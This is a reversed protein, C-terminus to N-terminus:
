IEPVGALNDQEGIHNGVVLIEQGNNQAIELPESVEFTGGMGPVRKGALYQKGSNIDALLTERDLLIRDSFVAGRRLYARVWAVQGDPLYHVAEIVGDYKSKAM